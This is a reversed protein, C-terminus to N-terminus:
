PLLALLRAAAARRAEFDGTSADRAEIARRTATQVANRFRSLSDDRRATLGTREARLRYGWFAVAGGAVLLFFPWPNSTVILLLLGLAAVVGGGALIWEAKAALQHPTAQDAIRAEERRVSTADVGEPSAFLQTGTM